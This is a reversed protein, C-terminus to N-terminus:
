SNGDRQRRVNGAHVLCWSFGTAPPRGRQLLAGASVETLSNQIPQTGGTSADDITLAGGVQAGVASGGPSATLLNFVGDITGPGQLAGLLTTDSTIALVGGALGLFTSNVLITM